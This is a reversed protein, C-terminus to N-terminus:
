SLGTAAGPGPRASPTFGFVRISSKKGCRRPLALVAFKAACYVSARGYGHKAAQSAINIITGHRRSLMDPLCAQTLLFSGQCLYGDGQGM